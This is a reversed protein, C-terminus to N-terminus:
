RLMTGSYPQDTSEPSTVGGYFEQPSLRPTETPRDPVAPPPLDILPASGLPAQAIQIDANEAGPVSPPGLARLWQEPTKGLDKGTVRRLSSMALNQTAPDRDNLALALSDVSVSGKHKALASMASHKVDQETESGLTKALLQAAVGERRRGLARCAEMRVKINDDDLGKEILPIASAVQLKGAANIALRRMESSPDTDIIRNLHAAWTAQRDTPMGGIQSALSALQNRREHDTVGFQADERWEKLTFYPNVHKLAYLPGDHCGTLFVAAVCISISFLVNIFGGQISKSPGTTLNRIRM